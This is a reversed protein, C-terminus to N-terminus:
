DVSLNAIKTTLTVAIETGSLDGDGNEDFGVSVSVERLAEDQDDSVTRLYSNGLSVSDEEFSEDYNQLCKARIEDLKGQALIVSQTRREVIRSTAQAITLAKLVPVVVVMLLASAVVVETLTMGRRDRTRRGRQKALRRLAECLPSGEVHRKRM